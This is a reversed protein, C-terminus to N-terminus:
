HALKSQCDRRQVIDHFGLIWSGFFWLVMLCRAYHYGLTLCSSSYSSDSEIPLVMVLSTFLWGVCRRRPRAARITTAAANDATTKTRSSPRSESGGRGSLSGANTFRSESITENM